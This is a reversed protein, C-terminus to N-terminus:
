SVSLLDIYVLLAHPLTALKIRLTGLDEARRVGGGEVSVLLRAQM